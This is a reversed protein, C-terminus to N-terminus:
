VYNSREHMPVAPQRHKGFGRSHAVAPWLDYALSLVYATFFIAITWECVAAPSPYKLAM